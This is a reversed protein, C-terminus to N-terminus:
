HQLCVLMDLLVAWQMLMQIRYISNFLLPSFFVVFLCNLRVQVNGQVIEHRYSTDDTTPACSPALATNPLFNTRASAGLSPLVDVRVFAEYHCQMAIVADTVSLSACSPQLSHRTVLGHRLVVRGVVFMLTIFSLDSYVYKSGIPNILHQEQVSQFIRRM